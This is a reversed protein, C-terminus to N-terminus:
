SNQLSLDSLDITIFGLTTKSGGNDKQNDRTIGELPLPIGITSPSRKGNKWTVEGIKEVINAVNL